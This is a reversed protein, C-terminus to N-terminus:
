VSLIKMVETRTSPIGRIIAERITTAARWIAAVQMVQVEITARGATCTALPCLQDDSWTHSTVMMWIKKTMMTTSLTQSIRAFRIPGSLQIMGSRREIARIQSELVVLLVLLVLLLVLALPVSVLAVLGGPRDALLVAVKASEVTSDMVMPSSVRRGSQRTTRELSPRLTTRIFQDSGEKLNITLLNEGRRPTVEMSEVLPGARTAEVDDVGTTPRDEGPLRSTKIM